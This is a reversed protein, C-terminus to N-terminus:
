PESHADKENSAYANLPNEWKGREIQQKKFALYKSSQFARYHRPNENDVLEPPAGIEMEDLFMKFFDLSVRYQQGKVIVRHKVSPIMNNSWAQM